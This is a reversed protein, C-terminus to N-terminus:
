QVNTQWTSANPGKVLFFQKYRDDSELYTKEWAMVYRGAANSETAPTGWDFHGLDSVIYMLKPTSDPITMYANPTQNMGGLITTDTAGNLMMTPVKSMMASQQWGTATINHGALTIASRWEPHKGSAIWVAGGGMSWGIVGARNVDIKGMLMANTKLIGMLEELGQARQPPFDGTTVSDMTALVIGHSAFFPGWAAFAVQTATYPPCFAAYAYPPTADTPVYVTAGGFNTGKPVTFTTFKSPGNKNLEDASPTTSRCLCAGTGGGAGAAGAAGGTAAGGTGAGGTGAGGAGSAGSSGGSSAGGTAPSGGGAPSTGGGAPPSGGNGMPIGGSGPAGSTAPIGGTGTTLGSGTAGGSGTATTGGGGPVTPTGGVGSAGAGGGAGANSSPIVAAPAPTGDGSGCGLSGCLGAAFVLGSWRDFNSM